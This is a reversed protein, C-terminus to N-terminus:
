IYVNTIFLLSLWHLKCTITSYPPSCFLPSISYESEGILNDICELGGLGPHTGFLSSLM